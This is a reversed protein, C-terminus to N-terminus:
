SNILIESLLFLDLQSMVKGDSNFLTFKNGVMAVYILEIDKIFDSFESM